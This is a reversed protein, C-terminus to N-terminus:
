SRTILVQLKAPSSSLIHTGTRQKHVEDYNKTVAKVAYQQKTTVHTCTSVKAFAGHGILKGVSYHDSFKQLHGKKLEQEAAELALTRESKAAKPKESGATPSDADNSLCTCINGM